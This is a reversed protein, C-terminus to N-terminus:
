SCAAAGGGGTVFVPMGIFSAGLDAGANKMMMMMPMMPPASM